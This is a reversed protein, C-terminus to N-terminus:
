SFINLIIVLFDLPLSNAFIDHSANLADIKLADAADIFSLGDSSDSSLCNM